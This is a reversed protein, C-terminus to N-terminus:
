NKLLGEDAFSFHASEGVVIHDLLKIDLTKCGDNLKNTLAEDAKSPHPNGSPHNHCVVLSVAGLQLAKKFIVRPDAVTSTIGGESVVEFRIIQGSQKLYLVGFVEHPYESLLPRLYTAAERSNRVFSRGPLLNSQRRLGLELAAAITIAKAQKIGKIKMLEPISSKGLEHLNNQVLKLVERALEVASKDKHGTRLLIALLESDTLAQPGKLLLKERPRDNPAWEKIGTEKKKMIM